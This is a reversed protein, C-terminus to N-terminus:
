IGKVRIKVRGRWNYLLDLRDPLHAVTAAKSRFCFLPKAKFDLILGDNKEHRAAAPRSNKDLYEIKDRKM